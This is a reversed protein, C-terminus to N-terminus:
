VADDSFRIELMGDELKAGSPRQGHLAQPLIITRREGCATVILEDGIQKLDIEDREAFALPLRLLPIEGDLDFERGRGNWLVAAADLEADGYLAQGLRELMEAGVVEREFLRAELVPLPAFGQKVEALNDEQRRRWDGLYGGDLEAPLIRNAVVADTAFGYLGLYTFTRRAERIVMRDPNMVLRLTCRERDRLIGNIEILSTALRDIESLADLNPLPLDLSRALPRAASTLRRNWPFVKELWWKAMEPFGLLRLTEGTPACDVVILDFEGGADHRRIELLSFLEDMGPPVTLEEARLRDVGQQALVKALWDRMATWSREMEVQARVEQGWLNGAVPTPEAGLETELSDALSHAPDTSLVVTRMGSAAGRLATAAAVSTKGVGGKGTCLIIRPGHM